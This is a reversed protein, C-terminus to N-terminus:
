QIVCEDTGVGAIKLNNITNLSNGSLTQEELMTKIRLDEDIAKEENDLHHVLENKENVTAVLKELLAQEENRMEETKLSESIEEFEHLRTRLEELKGNIHSEKEKINLQMQRRVLSHRENVLEIWRKLKKNHLNHSVSNSGVENRLQIELENKERKIREEEESLSTLENKLLIVSQRVEPPPPGPSTPSKNRRFTVQYNSHAEQILKKAKEDNKSPSEMNPRGNLNNNEPSSEKSQEFISPTSPSSDTEDETKHFWISQEKWKKIEEASPPPAGSDSSLIKKIEKLFQIIDDKSPTLSPTSCLPKGGLFEVVDSALKRNSEHNHNELSNLLILDPYKSHLLVCYGVGNRWSSTLNTIKIRDSHSLRFKAWELLEDDDFRTPSPVLDRQNNPVILLSDPIVVLDSRDEDDTSNPFLPIFDAKKEKSVSPAKPPEISISSSQQLSSPETKAAILPLSNPSSDISKLTATSKTHSFSRYMSNNMTTASSLNRSPSELPQLTAPPSRCRSSTSERSESEGLSSSSKTESDGKHEFPIVKPSETKKSPSEKYPIDPINELSPHDTISTVDMSKPSVESSLDEEALSLSELPANSILFTDKAPPKMYSLNLTASLIKRSLPRLKLRM